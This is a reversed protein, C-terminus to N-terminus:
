KGRLWYEAINIELLAGDLEQISFPVKRAELVKDNEDLNHITMIHKKGIAKGTASDDEMLFIVEGKDIIVEASELAPYSLGDKGTFSTNDLVIKYTKGESYCWVGLLICLLVLVINVAIHKIIVQRRSLASFQSM